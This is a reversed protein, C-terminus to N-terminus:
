FDFSIASNLGQFMLNGADSDTQHNSLDALQRMYNQDFFYQLEYGLTFDFNAKKHNFYSGFGLGTLFELTPTLQSLEERRNLQPASFFVKSFSQYLLNASLNGFFRFGKNLIWNSDFGARAGVFWSVISADIHSFSISNAPLYNLDFRQKLWGFKMGYLPKFILHTGNYFSRAFELDLADYLVKWKNSVQTAQDSFWSIQIFNADIDKTESTSASDHFRSYRLIASWNDHDFDAGIGVKCGPAWEFDSFIVPGRKAPDIPVNEGLDLGKESAFWYLFSGFIKFEWPDTVKIKAPANYGSQMQSKKVAYGQDFSDEQAFISFITLSAIIAARKVFLM